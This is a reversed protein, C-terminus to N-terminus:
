GGPAPSILWTVVAGDGDSCKRCCAPRLDGLLCVSLGQSGSAGRTRPTLLVVSIIRIIQLWWDVVNWDFCLRLLTAGCCSYVVLIREKLVSQSSCCTRARAWCAARSISGGTGIISKYTNINCSFDKCNCYIVWESDQLYCKKIFM